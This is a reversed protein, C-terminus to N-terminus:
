IGLAEEGPLGASGGGGRGPGFIQAIIGEPLNPVSFARNCWLRDRVLWIVHYFIVNQVKYEYLPKKRERTHGKGRRSFHANLVTIKRVKTHGTINCRSSM